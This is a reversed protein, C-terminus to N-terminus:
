VKRLEITTYKHRHKRNPDPISFSMITVNKDLMFDNLWNLKYHNNLTALLQNRIEADDLKEERMYFGIFNTLQSPYSRISLHITNRLGDETTKSEFHQINTIEFDFEALKLFRNVFNDRERATDPLDRRLFREGLEFFKLPFARIFFSVRSTMLDIAIIEDYIDIDDDDDDDLKTGELDLDVESLETLNSAVFPPLKFELDNDFFNDNDSSKGGKWNYKNLDSKNFYNKSLESLDKLSFGDKFFLYYNLNILERLQDKTEDHAKLSSNLDLKLKRYTTIHVYAWITLAIIVVIIIQIIGIDENSM